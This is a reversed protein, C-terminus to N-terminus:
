PGYSCTGVPALLLEAPMSRCISMFEMLEVGSADSALALFSAQALKICCSVSTITSRERLPTACAESLLTFVATASRSLPVLEVLDRLCTLSECGLVSLQALVGSAGVGKEGHLKCGVEQDIYRHSAM